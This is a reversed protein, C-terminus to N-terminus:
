RSYFRPGSISDWPNTHDPQAKRPASVPRSKTLTITRAHVSRQAPERIWWMQDLLTQKDAEAQKRSYDDYFPHYSEVGPREKRILHTRLRQGIELLKHRLEFETLYRPPPLLPLYHDPHTNV